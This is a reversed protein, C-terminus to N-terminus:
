QQPLMQYVKNTILKEQADSGNEELCREAVAMSSMPLQHKALHEMGNLHAAMAIEGPCWLKSNHVAIDANKLQKHNDQQDVGALHVMEELKENISHESQAAAVHKAPEQNLQITQKTSVEMEKAQM